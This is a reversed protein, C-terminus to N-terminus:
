KTNLTLLIKNFTLLISLECKKILFFWKWLNPKTNVFFSQPTTTCNTNYQDNTWIFFSGM